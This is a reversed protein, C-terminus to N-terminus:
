SKITIFHSQLARRRSDSPLPFRLRRWYCFKQWLRPSAAELKANMAAILIPKDEADVIQRDLLAHILRWLDRKAARRERWSLKSFPRLRDFRDITAGDPMEGWLDSLAHIRLQRYVEIVRARLEPRLRREQHHLRYLLLIDPLNAVRVQACRLLRDLLEVDESLRQGPRYGGIEHLCERRLMLTGGALVENSLFLNLAIMANSLPRLAISPIPSLDPKVLYYCTGIAGIGPHAELYLVQKHLREPLSVDDCDMMAVYQGRAVAIGTNRADAKGRNSEHRLLRVRRDRKVYGELIDVSGDQSGDDVVILEFDRLTQALVSDIAEALYTEGNYVPIIVSVLPM